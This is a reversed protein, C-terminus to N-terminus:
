ATEGDTTGETEQKFWHSQQADGPLRDSFLGFHRGLLELAKIQEAISPHRPREAGTKDLEMVTREGEAIASLSELIREAGLTRPGAPPPTPTLRDLLARARESLVEETGRANPYAARYAAALAQASPAGDPSLPLADLFQRQKATM